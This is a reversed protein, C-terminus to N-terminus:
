IIYDDRIICEPSDRSIDISDVRKKHNENTVDHSSIPSDNTFAIVHIRLISIVVKRTSSFQYEPTYVISYQANYDKMSLRASGYPRPYIIPQGHKKVHQVALSM